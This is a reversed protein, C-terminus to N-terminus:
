SAMACDAAHLSDIIISTLHLTYTIAFLTNVVRSDRPVETAHSFTPHIKLLGSGIADM